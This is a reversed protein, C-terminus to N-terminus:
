VSHFLTVWCQNESSSARSAFTRLVQSPMIEIGSLLYRPTVARMPLSPQPLWRRAGAPARKKKPM